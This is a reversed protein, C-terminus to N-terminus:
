TQYSYAATYRMNSHRKYWEDFSIFDFATVERPKTSFTVRTYSSDHLILRETPVRLGVMPAHVKLKECQKEQFRDAIRTYSNVQFNGKSNLVLVQLKTSYKRYNENSTSTIQVDNNVILKARSGLSVSATGRTPATRISSAGVPYVVFDYEVYGRKLQKRLKNLRTFAVPSGNECRRRVLRFKEIWLYM